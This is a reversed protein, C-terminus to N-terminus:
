SSGSPDRGFTDLLVLRRREERLQEGFYNWAHYCELGLITVGAAFVAWYYSNLAGALAYFIYFTTLYAVPLLTSRPASRNMMRSLILIAASFSYLFLGGSLLGVPPPPGLRRLWDAPIIEIFTPYLRLGLSLVLFLVLGWLSCSAGGEYKRINALVQQRKVDADNDSAVGTEAHPPRM